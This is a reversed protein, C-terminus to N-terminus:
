HSFHRVNTFLLSVGYKDRCDVADGERISGGPEFPFFADSALAAGKVEEGAKTLAIRSSELRNPQGSGMGLM